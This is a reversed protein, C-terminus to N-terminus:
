SPKEVKRFGDFLHFLSLVPYRTLIRPGSYRMVKRVKERMEPKYCHIPCKSCVPKDPLYPCKEIREMAYNQLTHCDDCLYNKDPNHHKRCFMRIMVSITKKERKARRVKKEM